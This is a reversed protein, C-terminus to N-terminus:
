RLIPSQLAPYLALYNHVNPEYRPQRLNLDQKVWWMFGGLIRVKLLVIAVKLIVTKM